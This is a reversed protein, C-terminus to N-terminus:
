DRVNWNKDSHELNSIKGVNNQIKESGINEVEFSTDLSKYKERKKLQIM